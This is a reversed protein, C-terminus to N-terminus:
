ALVVDAVDVGRRRWRQVVATVHVVPALEAQEVGAGPQIATVGVVPPVPIAHEHAAPEAM